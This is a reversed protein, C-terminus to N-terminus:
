AAGSEEAEPYHPPLQATREGGHWVATMHMIAHSGFSAIPNLSLLYGLTIIANGFIALRIQAVNQFEPYGIHYAVTVIASTVLALLGAGVTGLTTAGLAPFSRWVLLVPFVSLFLGDIAGYVLGFWLLEFVLRAGKSRPSAPQSLVNRVLIFSVVVTAPLGWVWNRALLAAVDLQEARVFAFLFASVGLVYPILFASRRLRLRGVFVSTIAFGLVSAAIVWVAYSVM